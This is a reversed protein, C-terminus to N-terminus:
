ILKPPTQKFFDSGMELLVGLELHEVHTTAQFRDGLWHYHTDPRYASAVLLFSRALWQYDLIM